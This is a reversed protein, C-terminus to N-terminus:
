KKAEAASGVTINSCPKPTPVIYRKRMLKTQITAFSTSSIWFLLLGAPVEARICMPAMSIAVLNLGWKLVKNARAKPVDGPALRKIEAIEASSKTTWGSNINALLIGSLIVPLACYPDAALLDPFWLAGETAMSPELPAISESPPNSYWTQIVGLLGVPMGTMRRLSELIALWFPFQALMSFRSWPRVKWRKFLEKRKQRYKKQTQVKVVAPVVFPQAARQRDMEQKRECKWWSMLIPTLRARKGADLLTFRQLSIGVVLRFAAAALPISAVWPLGTVSHTTQILGHGLSVMTDIVTSADPLHFSRKQLGVALPRQIQNRPANNCRAFPLPGLPRSIARAQFCSRM